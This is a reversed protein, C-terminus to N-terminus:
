IYTGNLGSISKKMGLVTDKARNTKGVALSDLTPM